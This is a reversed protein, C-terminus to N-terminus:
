GALVVCYSHGRLRTKSYIDQAELEFIGLSCRLRGIIDRASLMNQHNEEKEQLTVISLAGSLSYRRSCLGSGCRRSVIQIVLNVCFM